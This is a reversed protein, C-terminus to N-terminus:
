LKLYVQLKLEALATEIDDSTDKVEFTDLLKNCLEAESREDSSVAVSTINM